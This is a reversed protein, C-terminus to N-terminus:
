GSLVMCVCFSGAVGSRGGTAPDPWLVGDSRFVCGCSGDTEVKWEFGRCGCGSFASVRGVAHQDKGYARWGSTISVDDHFVMGTDTDFMCLIGVILEEM